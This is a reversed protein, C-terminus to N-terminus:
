PKRRPRRELPRRAQHYIRLVQLESTTTQHYICYPSISWARVRLGGKLTVARGRVLTSSLLDFAIRVHRLFHEAATPSDEAIFDYAEQLDLAAAESLVLIM